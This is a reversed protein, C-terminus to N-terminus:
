YAVGTLAAFDFRSRWHAIGAVVHSSLGRAERAGGRVGTLELRSCLSSLGRVYHAKGAVSLASDRSSRSCCGHVSTFKERSRWHAVVALM